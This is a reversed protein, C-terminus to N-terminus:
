QSLIADVAAYTSVAYPVMYTLPIKWVLDTAAGGGLLVNGHNIGVLITGVILSVRLSRAVVQRRTAVQYWSLKPGTDQSLTSPRSIM